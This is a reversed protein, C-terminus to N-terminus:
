LVFFGIFIGTQIFFNNDSLGEPMGTIEKGNAATWKDSFSIIYGAGFRFAIFRNLPYDINITPSVTFFDNELRRSINSTSNDFENLIGDWSFGTSNQYIEIERYGKGIMTGISVAIKKIFPLTYEITLAGAGTSYIVENENSGIVANETVSGGFGVGGIRMNDVVLIYAYGGGGFGLIGSSPLNDIGLGPLINNLPEINPMMFTPTFGAALGFKSVLGIPQQANVSDSLLATIIIIFSFKKM